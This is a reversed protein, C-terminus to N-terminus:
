QSRGRECDTQGQPCTEGWLDENGVSTVPEDVLPLQVDQGIPEVDLVVPVDITPGSPGGPDLSGDLDPKGPPPVDIGRCSNGIVCGNITSLRDFLGGARPAVGNIRIAPITDLGTLALGAADFTQGNIVIRSTAANTAIAMTNASFGRRDAFAGSIGLNQIYIGDGVAVTFAGVNIVTDRQTGALTDLLTNIAATGQAADLASITAANAVVIRDAAVDLTGTRRGSDDIMAISGTDAVLDVRGATIALTDAAAAALGTVDGTVRVLGPTDVAFTGGTGLNGNAGYTVAFSDLTVTGGIGSVPPVVIGIRGDAFIRALETRDLSYTGAAGAGGVTAPGGFNGLTVTGTTGRTGLTGGAGIAIDNSFANVLAGSALADLRLTGSATIALTGTALLSANIAIDGGSSLTVSGGQASANTTISTGATMTLVAPDIAANTVIAGGADLAILSTGTLAANVTLDTGAAIRIADATIAGGTTVAANASTLDASTATTIAGTALAQQASLAVSNGTIAATTTIGGGATVSLAGGALLPGNNAFNGGATFSLAGGTASVAATAVDTGGHYTVAGAGTVTGSTTLTTAATFDITTGAGIAGGALLAGGAGITLATGATIDRFQSVNGGGNITIAGAATLPGFGDVQGSAAIGLAGASTLADNNVFTTGATFSMGGGGTTTVSGTAISTGALYSLPGSASVADNNAIFTGAGFSLAGGSAVTSGNAISTGASVSLAGGSAVAGTLAASGVARIDLTTGAGLTALAGLNGGSDLLLAGGAQIPGNASVDGTATLSANGGTGLTGNSAITGGALYTAAGAATVDTGTTLNGGATMAVDGGSIVTGVTDLTTGARLTVGTGADISNGITLATGATATLATGATLPADATSSLAGGAALTLATGATVPANLAMDAGSSLTVAGSADTSVMSLTGNVTIALDGGTTQASAFGLSGTSGISASQGLLTVPGASQLNGVTAAGGAALLNTTGTVTITAIDIGGTAAIADFTDGAVVVPLAIAGNALLSIAQTGTLRDTVTITGTDSRMDISTADLAGLTVDGFARITAAGSAMPGTANIAGAFSRISLAGGVTLPSGSGLNIAADGTFNFTADGAVQIPQALTSMELGPATANATDGLSNVTLNGGISVLDGAVTIPTGLRVIGAVTSPTGGGPTAGAIGSADITVDGDVGITGFRAFLTATGGTGQGQAATAAANDGGLGNADLIATGVTLAGLAATQVRTSGGIAGGGFGLTGADSGAGYASVTLTAGTADLSGGIVDVFASGGTASGGISNATGQSRGSIANASVAVASAFGMAGGAGQLAAFGGQTQGAVGVDGPAIDASRGDALITLSNASGASYSLTLSDLAVLSASGGLGTGGALGNKAAGGTGSADITMGMDAVLTGLTDVSATAQGGTGNGDSAGVVNSLAAAGGTGSARVNIPAGTVTVSGATVFNATGGQGSSGYGDTVPRFSSGIFTSIGGTGRADVLLGTSAGSSSSLSPDVLLSGATRVELSTSGGTAGGAGSLGGLGNAYALVALGPASIAGDVVLVSATGGTMEPTFLPDSPLGDIQFDASASVNMQGQSTISGGNTVIAEALGATASGTGAFGLAGFADATVDIGFTTTLAAGNVTLSAGNVSDAFASGGTAGTDIGYGAEASANITLSSWSQGTTGNISVRATGGTGTGGQGYSSAGQASGYLAVLGANVTSSFIDLGASGGTGNGSAADGTGGGGGANLQLDGGNGVVAGGFVTVDVIGGLGDGGISSGLGGATAGTGGSGAASFNISPSDLLAGTGISATITGGQGAGGSATGDGGRGEANITLIGPTMTGGLSLNVTGGTGVGGNAPRSDGYGSADVALGAASFTGSPITFTILGGTGDPGTAEARNADGTALMRVLGKADFSGGNDITTTITGGTQGLGANVALAYRTGFPPFLIDAPVGDTASAVISSGSSMDLAVTGQADLSAFWDFQTLATPAVTINGTARADVATTFQADGITINGLTAPLGASYFGTGEGSSLIVATGDASATSAYGMTGGLLMTLGDNKPVAVMYIARQAGSGGPAPGTTSGSHVVGNGDTTGATVTIDFLGANMTIDAAEAALYAVPGEASVTGDQVVRPAVLAVYAPTQAQGNILASISAGKAVTVTALSGTTGAFRIQGAAGYFGGTTSIADTTLVLGGVNFRATAGVVIGNPSYFWVNGGTAGFLTSNVTGNFAIADTSPGGAATGPIIRNLVTYDPNPFSIGEHFTATTGATQFVTTGTGAATVSWDIVTERANLTIDTTGAGNVISASGSSVTGTGQFSQARAPSALGLALTLAALSAGQLSVRLPLSARLPRHAASRNQNM